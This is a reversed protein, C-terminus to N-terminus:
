AQPAERQFESPSVGTHKKFVASFYAADNFGSDMAVQTISQDGRKLMMCAKAIRIKQLYHM